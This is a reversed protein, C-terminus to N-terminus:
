RLGDCLIDYWIMSPLHKSNFSLSALEVHFGFLLQPCNSAVGGKKLELLAGNPAAEKESRLDKWTAVNWLLPSCKEATLSKFLSIILKELKISYSFFSNPSFRTFIKLLKLCWQLIDRVYVNLFLFIYFNM